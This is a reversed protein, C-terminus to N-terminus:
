MVAVKYEKVLIEKNGWDNCGMIVVIRIEVEKFKVRKSRLPSHSQGALIIM